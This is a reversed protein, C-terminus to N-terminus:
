EGQSPNRWFLFFGYDKVEKLIVRSIGGKEERKDYRMGIRKDM